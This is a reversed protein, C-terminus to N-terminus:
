QKGYSDPKATKQSAAKLGALFFNFITEAFRTKDQKFVELPKPRHSGDRNSLEMLHILPSHICFGLTHILTNDMPQGTIKSILQMFWERKPRMFTKMITEHIPSPQGFEWHVLRPFAPRSREDSLVDEVRVRIFERLQEEPDSLKKVAAFRKEGGANLTEWVKFYLKDKGGFHYNVAAINVGAQECIDQTTASHYGKASFIDSAAQIIKEKTTSM